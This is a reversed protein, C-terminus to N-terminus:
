LLSSRRARSEASQGLSISDEKVVDPAGDKVLYECADVEVRPDRQATRDRDVVGARRHGAGGIVGVKHRSARADHSKGPNIIGRTLGLGELCEAAPLAFAFEDLLLVDHDAELMGWSREYPQKGALIEPLLQHFNGVCRGLGAKNTEL